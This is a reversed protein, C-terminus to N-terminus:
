PKMMEEINSTYRGDRHYIILPELVRLATRRGKIGKIGQVIAWKAPSGQYSHISRLWQPELCADRMTCILDTLREVPYIAVIMGGPRLLKAATAILQALDIHLEHRAVAKQLNPNIRGSGSRRYPPNSIVVDVAGGVGNSDLRKMDTEIISIQHSMSNYLVNQRAFAALEPQIEVGIIEIGPHRYALIIPIIGCGTGLDVLRERAKIKIHAALIISDISFRYGTNSQFIKIRGNLFADETCNIM